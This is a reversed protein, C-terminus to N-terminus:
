QFTVVYKQWPPRFYDPDFNSSQCDISKFNLSISRGRRSSTISTNSNPSVSRGRHSSTVSNNSKLSVSRGRHSSTVLHHSNLSVSRGRHSSTIPNSNYFQSNNSKFNLSISRRSHSSTIPNNNTLPIKWIDRKRSNATWASSWLKTCSQAYVNRM